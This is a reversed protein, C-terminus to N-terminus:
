NIRQSRDGARRGVMAERRPRPAPDRTRRGAHSPVSPLALASSACSGVRCNQLQKRFPGPPSEFGPCSRLLLPPLRPPKIKISKTLLQQIRNCKFVLSQFLKSRKVRVCFAAKQCKGRQKDKRKKRGKEEEEFSLAHRSPPCLLLSSRSRRELPKELM